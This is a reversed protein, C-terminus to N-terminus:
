GKVGGEMDNLNPIDFMEPDVDDYDVTIQIDCGLYPNRVYVVADEQVNDKLGRLIDLAESGIEYVYDMIRLGNEYDCLFDKKPFYVYEIKDWDPDQEMEDNWDEISIVKPGTYDQKKDKAALDEETLVVKQPIVRPETSVPNVETGNYKEIAEKASEEKEIRFMDDLQIQEAIDAFIKDYLKQRIFWGAAFGVAGSIVGTLLYKVITSNM